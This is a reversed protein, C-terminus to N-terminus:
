AEGDLKSDGLYSDVVKTTNKNTLKQKVSLFQWGFPFLIFYFLIDNTIYIGV